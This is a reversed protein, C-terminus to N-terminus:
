FRSYDQPSTHNPYAPPPADGTRRGQGDFVGQRPMTPTSRRVIEAVVELDPTEGLVFVQERTQSVIRRSAVWGSDKKVRLIGVLEDNARLYFRRGIREVTLERGTM